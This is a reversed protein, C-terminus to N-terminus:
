SQSQHMKPVLSPLQSEVESPQSNKEELNDLNLKRKVNQPNKVISDVSAKTGKSTHWQLGPTNKYKVPFLRKILIRYDNKKDHKLAWFLQEHEVSM